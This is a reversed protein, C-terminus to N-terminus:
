EGQFPLYIRVLTGYNKSSKMTFKGGEILHVRKVINGLGIGTVHGENQSNSCSMIQQVKEKPMGDGTDYVRISVGKHKSKIDVYIAAGNEKREVGYKLSNEVLPQLILSPILFTECGEECNVFYQLRSEFRHQQIYIYSEAVYLEKEITSSRNIHDINYRCITALKHVLHTSIDKPEYEISHSIANLTNFLFHPNMQSQLAHYQAESLLKLHNIENIEAEHLQKEIKVREQLFNTAEKIADKMVNFTKTLKGIEDENRIPLDDFEYHGRSIKKAAEVLNQIPKTIFESFAIACVVYLITFVVFIIQAIGLVSEVKANHEELKKTNNEVLINLYEDFYQSIYDYVAEGEYYHTYYFINKEDMAQIALDYQKFLENTSNQIARLLIKENAEYTNDIIHELNEKALDRNEQYGALHDLDKEKTYYYMNTDAERVAMSVSQASSYAQQANKNMDVSQIMVTSYVIYVMVNVIILILFSIMLKNKLSLNWQKRM